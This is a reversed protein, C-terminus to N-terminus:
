WGQDCPVGHCSPCIIAFLSRLGKTSRSAPMCDLYEMKRSL